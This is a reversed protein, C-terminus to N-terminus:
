PPCLVKVYLLRPHTERNIGEEMGIGAEDMSRGMKGEERSWRSLDVFDPGTDDVGAGGGEGGRTDYQMRRGASFGVAALIFVLEVSRADISEHEEEDVHTDSDDDDAGDVDGDQEEVRM